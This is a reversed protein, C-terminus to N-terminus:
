EVKDDWIVHEILVVGKQGISASITCCDIYRDGHDPCVCEYKYKGSGVKKVVLDKFSAPSDLLGEVSCQVEPWSSEYLDQKAAKTFRVAEKNGKLFDAIAKCIVSDTDLEPAASTESAISDSEAVVTTNSNTKSTCGFILFAGFILTIIRKMSRCLSGLILLNNSIIDSFKEM